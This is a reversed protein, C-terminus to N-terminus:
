ILLDPKNIGIRFLLLDVWFLVTYCCMVLLYRYSVAGQDIKFLSASISVCIKIDLKRYTQMDNFIVVGSM